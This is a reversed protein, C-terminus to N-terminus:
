FDNHSLMVVSLKEKRYKTNMCRNLIFFLLANTVARYGRGQFYHLSLSSTSLVFGSWRHRWMIIFVRCMGIRWNADRTELTQGNPRKSVIWVSRISMFWRTDPTCRGSSMQFPIPIAHSFVREHQRVSLLYWCCFFFVPSFFPFIREFAVPLIYFREAPWTKRIGYAIGDKRDAQPIHWFFFILSYNQGIIARWCVIYYFTGFDRCEYCYMLNTYSYMSQTRRVTNRKQGNARPRKAWRMHMTLHRPGAWRRVSWRSSGIARLYLLYFM